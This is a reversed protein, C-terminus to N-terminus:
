TDPASRLRRESRDAAVLMENAGRRARYTVPETWTSVGRDDLEARVSGLYAAPKSERTVLPYIRVEGDTVRVLESIAEVHFRRDLLGEYVFLLHSSLSLRFTRDRCPLRPLAAALMGPSTDVLRGFTEASERRSQEWGGIDGYTPGFEYWEPNRSAQERINGVFEGVDSAVRERAGSRGLAFVPDASIVRMGLQRARAGFTAGGSPCDLILGGRLDADSLNFM